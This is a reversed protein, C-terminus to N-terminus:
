DSRHVTNKEVFVIIGEQTRPTLDIFAIAMGPYFDPQLDKDASWLVIGKLSKLKKSKDFAIEIDLECGPPLMNITRVFLGAGSINAIRGSYLERKGRHASSVNLRYHVPVDIDLRKFRRRLPQDSLKPRPVKAGNKFSKLASKTDNCIEFVEDLKVIRLLDLIHTSINCLKMVGKRNLVSKYAIALVSLGNYDMFTVKKMDVVIRRKGSSIVTGVAEILESSNINVRGEVELVAVDEIGAIKIKM